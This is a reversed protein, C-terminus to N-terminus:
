EYEQYVKFGANDYRWYTGAFDRSALRCRQANNDWGCGRLARLLINM